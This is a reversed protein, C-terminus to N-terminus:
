SLLANNLGQDSKKEAILTAILASAQKKNQPLIKCGLIRLYSIQKESPEQNESVAKVIEPYYKKDHNWRYFQIVPKMTIPDESLWTLLEELRDLKSTCGYKKSIAIAKEEEKLIIYLIMDYMDDLPAHPFAKEVIKIAEAIDVAIHHHTLNGYWIEKISIIEEKTM